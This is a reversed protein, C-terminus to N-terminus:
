FDKVVQRSLRYGDWSCSNAVLSVGSFVSMKVKKKIKKRGRPNRLLLHLSSFYVTPHEVKGRPCTFASRTFM